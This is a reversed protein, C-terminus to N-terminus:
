TMSQRALEAGKAISCLKAYAVDWSRTRLGCDPNVYIREPDELIKTAYEIRNQVLTPSEIEDIHVDAVGLGVERDDGYENLLKLQDYAERKGYDRNAFELALQSCNKLKLVHPYLLSYDSYCVHVSFKCQIGRTCENFAEVFFPVEAPKTTLAPEDIQIWEAGAEVLAQLNPRIIEKATDLVFERKAEFKLQRPDPYKGALQKQYYENFSWEAITYPGTIPVKIKRIAHQKVFDFEKLHYPERFGVKRVCAAKRYYRNDFSRVHGYFAFGDSNRVSHEYMEIRNAEGDYVYELGASELFRIGFLSALQRIREETEPANALSLISRAEEGGEFGTIKPWKSLHDFDSQEFKRGRLYAILWPAKPLSGIEQVPFLSGM